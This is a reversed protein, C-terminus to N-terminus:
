LLKTHQEHGQEEGAPLCMWEEKGPSHKLLTLLVIYNVQGCKEKYTVLFLLLSWSRSASGSPFDTDPEHKKWCNFRWLNYLAQGM